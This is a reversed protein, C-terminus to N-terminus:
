SRPRNSEEVENWMFTCVIASVLCGVLLWKPANALTTVFAGVEFFLSLGQAVTKTMQSRGWAVIGAAYTLHM